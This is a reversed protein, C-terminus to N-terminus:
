KVDHDIMVDGAVINYFQGSVLRLKISGDFDIEKFIGSIRKVGDDVTIVKNLNYARSMWDQRIKKFNNEIVWEQYLPDFKSMLINLFEDVGKLEFGEDKLSTARELKKPANMINVGCGIVIYNNGAFSISKLLIGAVKKNAILVDNPWKLSIDGNLGQQKAISQIAEYMANAILFSLQFHRQPDVVSTILISAQLNDPFSIWQRGKQGRGGTQNRSLIVFNGTAGSSAMRLAESNTSDISEFTILNYNKLWNFQM